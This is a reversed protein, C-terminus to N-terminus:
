NRERHDPHEWLDARDGAKREQDLQLSNAQNSQFNCCDRESYVSNERRIEYKQNEWRFIDLFDMREAIQIGYLGFLMWLRLVPDANGM